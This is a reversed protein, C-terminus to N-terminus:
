KVLLHFFFHKEFNMECLKPNTNSIIMVGNKECFETKLSHGTWAFFFGANEFKEDAKYLM